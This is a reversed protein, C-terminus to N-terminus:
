VRNFNKCLQLASSSQHVILQAILVSNELWTFLNCKFLSLRQRPLNPNANEDNNCDCGHRSLRVHLSNMDQPGVVTVEDVILIATSFTRGDALCSTCCNNAENMTADGDSLLLQELPEEPLWRRLEELEDHSFEANEQNGCQRRV